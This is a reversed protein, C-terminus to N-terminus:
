LFLILFLNGRNRQAVVYIQKAHVNVYEYLLNLAPDNTYFEKQPDMLENLTLFLWTDTFNKIKKQIECFIYNVFKRSEFYPIPLLTSLNEVLKQCINILKKLQDFSFSQIEEKIVLSPVIKQSTKIVTEYAKEAKKMSDYFVVYEIFTNVVRQISYRANIQPMTYRPNMGQHQM